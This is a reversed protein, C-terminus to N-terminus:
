VIAANAIGAFITDLALYAAVARITYLGTYPRRGYHDCPRIPACEHYSEETSPRTDVSDVIRTDRTPKHPYIVRIETLCNPSAASDIYGCDIKCIGARAM